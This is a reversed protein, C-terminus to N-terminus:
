ARVATAMLREHCQPGCVAYFVHASEGPLQTKIAKTAKPMFGSDADSHPCGICCLSHQYDVLEVTAGVTIPEHAETTM